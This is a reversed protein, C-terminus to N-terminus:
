WWNCAQSDPHFGWQCPALKKLNYYDTKCLTTCHAIPNRTAGLENRSFPLLTRFRDLFGSDIILLIESKIISKLDIKSIKATIVHFNTVNIMCISLLVMITDTQNPILEINHNWDVWFANGLLIQTTISQQPVLLVLSIVMVFFRFSDIRLFAFDINFIAQRIASTPVLDPFRPLM